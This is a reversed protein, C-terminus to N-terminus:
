FNHYRYKLLVKNLNGIKYNHIAIDCWLKYDEADKCDDYKLSKFIEKRMIVTPHAFATMFKIEYDKEPYNWVKFIKDDNFLQINTGCVDKNTEMFEIQTEFREPLSIDDADMRAVYKGNSKEIGENLSSILGKNERSILVIRNDQNKYKKIIELSRDTSGDNIIIFEFDKYTQKLISEIAEDLYKEGNYVSM